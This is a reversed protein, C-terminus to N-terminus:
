FADQSDFHRCGVGCYFFEEEGAPNKAAYLIKLWHKEDYREPLGNSFKM